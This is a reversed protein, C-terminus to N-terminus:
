WSIPQSAILYEILIQSVMRAGGENFHVDDYFASTNKPVLPALDLCELEDLRCVSLLERNFAEMAKALETVSAYGLLKGDRRVWGFWLLSKEYPSLNARWMSPQTLFLCRLGREKCENAITQIRQRYENLGIQLDPIPVIAAEARLQRKEAIFSGPGVGMWGLNPTRSLKGLVVRFSTKALLFLETRKFYPRSPRLRQGGNLVQNRFQLANTELIEQNSKGTLFMDNIGILFVLLDMENIIPLSRMLELHDVSNRGSQGGNGVWVQPEFGRANLGEMILHPWEESDDLYLSETTSGGITVIKYVKDSDSPYNPGRLGIDNGTFTAKGEIGPMLNPDPQLLAEKGAPWLAPKSQGHHVVNLGLEFLLATLVVAYVAILPREFWRWAIIASWQALGFLVLGLALWAASIIFVFQGTTGFDFWWQAPVAMSDPDAPFRWALVVDLLLFLPFLLHILYATRLIRGTPDSRTVVPPIAM